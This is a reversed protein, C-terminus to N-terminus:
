KEVSDPTVPLNATVHDHQQPCARLKRGSHDGSGEGGKEKHGWRSWVDAFRGLVILSWVM